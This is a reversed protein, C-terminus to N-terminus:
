RGPSGTRCTGKGRLTSGAMNGGHPVQPMGPIGQPPGYGMREHGLQQQILLRQLDLHHCLLEPHDGCFISSSFRLFPYQVSCGDQNMGLTKDFSKYIQRTNVFCPWSDCNGWTCLQRYNLGLHQQKRMRPDTEEPPQGDMRDQWLLWGM